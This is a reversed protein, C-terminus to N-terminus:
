MGQDDIVVSFEGRLLGSNHYTRPYVLRPAIVEWVIVFLTLVLVSAVAAYEFRQTPYHASLLYCVVACAAFFFYFSGRYRGSHARMSELYDALSLTKTFELRM